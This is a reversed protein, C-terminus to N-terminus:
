FTYIGWSEPLPPNAVILFFSGVIILPLASVVGDRVALLYRNTGLKSMISDLTRDLFAQFKEM